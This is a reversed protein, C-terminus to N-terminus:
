LFRIKVNPLEVRDAFLWNVEFADKSLKRPVAPLVDRPADLDRFGRVRAAGSLLM